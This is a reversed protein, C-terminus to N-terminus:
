HKITQEHVPELGGPCVGGAWCAWGGLYIQIEQAFLVVEPSCILVLVDFMFNYRELHM